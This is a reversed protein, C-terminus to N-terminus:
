HCFVTLLMYKCLKIANFYVPVVDEFITKSRDVPTTNEDQVFSDDDEGSEESTYDGAEANIESYSGRFNRRRVPRDM